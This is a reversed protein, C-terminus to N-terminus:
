WTVSSDFQFISHGDMCLQCLITSLVTSHIYSVKCMNYFKHFRLCDVTNKCCMFQLIFISAAFVWMFFYVWNVGGGGSWWLCAYLCLCVWLNLCVYINTICWIYIQACMHIPQNVTSPSRTHMRTHKCTSTHHPYLLCFNSCGTWCVQAKEQGAIQVFYAPVRHGWWLQRSICWDRSVFM